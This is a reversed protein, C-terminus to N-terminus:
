KSVRILTLVSLVTGLVGTGIGFYRWFRDEKPTVEASRPEIYVIDNQKLYYAPSNFIEQSQINTIIKRRVGEEERIVTIKDPTANVSLGGAKTIAELLTMRGDPADLVRNGIAGTVSIKFNLIEVKVIPESILQGNILKNRVLDRVEELTLGEVHLNGLVPFAINGERDILYGQANSSQDIGTSVSGDNGVKYTGAVTNFPAALELSKASVQISVRDNKQLRLAPAEAVPYETDPLMDNVYVVKKSVCSNLLIIGFLTLGLIFKNM